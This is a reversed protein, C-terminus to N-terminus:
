WSSFVTEGSARARQADGHLGVLISTLTGCVGGHLAPLDQRFEGMPGVIM